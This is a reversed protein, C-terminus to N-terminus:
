EVRETVPRSSQNCVQFGPQSSVWEAYAHASSEPGSLQANIGQHSIYIRGQISTSDLWRRHSRLLDLPREVDTLHYFNVVCFAEYDSNSKVGDSLGLPLYVSNTIDDQLTQPVSDQEAACLRSARSLHSGAKSLRSARRAAISHRNPKCALAAPLSHAKSHQGLNATHDGPCLLRIPHVVPFSRCLSSDTLSPAHLPALVLM